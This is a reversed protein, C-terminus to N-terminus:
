EMYVPCWDMKVFFPVPIPWFLRSICIYVEVVENSNPLSFTIKRPTVVNKHSHFNLYFTISLMNPARTNRRNDLLSVYEGRFHSVLLFFHCFLITPLVPGNNAGFLLSMFWFVVGHLKFDIPLLTKSNSDPFWFTSLHISLRVSPRVSMLCMLRTPLNTVHLM